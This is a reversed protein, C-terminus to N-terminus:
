NARQNTIRGIIENYLIFVLHCFNYSFIEIFIDKKVERKAM